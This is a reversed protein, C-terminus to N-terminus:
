NNQPCGCVRKIVKRCAYHALPCGCGAGGAVPSGEMGHDSAFRFCRTVRWGVSPNIGAPAIAARPSRAVLFSCRFRSLCVEGDRRRDPRGHAAGTQGSMCISVNNYISGRATTSVLFWAYEYDGRYVVYECIYMDYKLLRRM